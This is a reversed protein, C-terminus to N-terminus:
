EDDRVQCWEEYEGARDKILSPSVYILPGMISNVNQAKAPLRGMPLDRVLGCGSIPEDAKVAGLASFGKEPYAKL